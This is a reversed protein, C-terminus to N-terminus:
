AVVRVRHARRTRTVLAILAGILIIAAGLSIGIATWDTGGGDVSAVPRTLPQPKGYSSYYREQARGLEVATPAGTTRGPQSPVTSPTEGAPMSFAAPAAVILAVVIGVIATTFTTHPKTQM